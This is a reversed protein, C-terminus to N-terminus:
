ELELEGYYFQLVKTKFVYDYKNRILTSEAAVLRNRVLDFDFLTMGGLTFSEQANKFAERQSALSVKAAEYAKSAAKADTYAQEITQQLQLKQNDLNVKSIEKNVFQRNVNTKIQFRSFIPVNLSFGLGYGFNGELQDFLGGNNFGSPKLVFNYNTNTFVSATLTPLFRGKAIEINYDADKIALEANKIQPQTTLAKQYVLDASSYYMSSTPSGVNIDEVDFGESPLQLLQALNLKAITLANETTVLNQIDNAATAEVNLYDAKPIIGNDYRDKAAKIQGQSIESQVKAVNYNEKAFLVNLYNNVVRLSIDNQIQELTLKSREIGLKAQKFTNLNRFGNFITAGSNLGLNGGFLTSSETRQNTVQNFNTGASLNGRTSASLDPLFNNKADKATLKALDVNLENQKVTINNKLAYEVCEKLTWKKQSFTISVTFLAALLLLKNKM